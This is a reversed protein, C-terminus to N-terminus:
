RQVTLEGQSEEREEVRRRPPHGVNKPQLYLRQGHLRDLRRRHRTVARYLCPRRSVIVRRRAVGSMEAGAEQRGCRTSGRRRRHHTPLLPWIFVGHSDTSSGGDGGGVERLSSQSVSLCIPVPGLCISSKSMGGELFAPQSTGASALASKLIHCLSAAM